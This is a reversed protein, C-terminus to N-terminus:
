GAAQIEVLEERADDALDIVLVVANVEPCYYKHERLGKEILSTDLTKLCNSYQRGRVTVSETISLVEGVDEAEGVYYEQRYKEGVTPQAKVVIGPQAGDVGAIWSGGHDKLTGDAYNDVNEGFYWVNGDKDQAFYDRTEEVIVGDVWARDLVVRTEVGMITKTENLAVIEVREVGEDSRGEYILKRGVPLSLYRSDINASFNASDITPAYAADFEDNGGFWRLGIAVAIAAVGVLAAIALNRSRLM